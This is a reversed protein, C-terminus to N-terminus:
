SNRLSASGFCVLHLVFICQWHPQRLRHLFQDSQVAQDQCSWSLGKMTSLGFGFGAHQWQKAGLLLRM